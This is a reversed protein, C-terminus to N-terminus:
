LDSASVEEAGTLKAYHKQVEVNKMAYAAYLISGKGKITVKEKNEIKALYPNHDQEGKVAAISKALAEANYRPGGTGREGSWVGNAMEEFRALVDPIPNADPDGKSKPNTSTSVINGVLTLGGFIALMTKTTDPITTLEFVAEPPAEDTDPDFDPVLRKATPIHTYRFGVADKEDGSEIPNGKADIWDRRAKRSSDSAQTTGNAM